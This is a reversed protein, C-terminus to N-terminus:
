SKRMLIDGHYTTFMYEEGGSGIQGVMWGSLKIAKSGDSRTKEEAPQVSLDIDFDTFIDGKTSKVKANFNANSPLTIDVDGHYTSFAMPSGPDVQTFSAKITGHHTDAVLSGAIKEATIGGHHANVELTGKINSVMVPGNHHTGISLDFNTPVQIKLNIQHSHGGAIDVVNDHERIELDSATKQVKRLGERVETEQDEETIAMVTVKVESGAYGEVTVSGNHLSVELTGKKSPDSLPVTYEQIDQGKILNSFMLIFCIATFIKM